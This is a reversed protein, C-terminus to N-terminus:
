LMQTKPLKCTLFFLTKVGAPSFKVFIVHLPQPISYLLFSCSQTNVNTTSVKEKYSYTPLLMKPYAVQKSTRTYIYYQDPFGEPFHSWFVFITQSQTVMFLQVNSLSILELIHGITMGSSLKCFNCDCCPRNANCGGLM